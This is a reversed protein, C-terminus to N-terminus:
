ELRTLVVDATNRPCGPIGRCPSHGPKLEDPSLPLTSATDKVSEAAVFRSHYATVTSM